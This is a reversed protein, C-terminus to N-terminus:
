MKIDGDLTGTTGFPQEGSKPNPGWKNDGKEGDTAFLVIIWIATAVIVLAPLLIWTTNGESKLMLVIVAAVFIPIIFIFIYWGSKGIDHLRRVMVALSPLFIALSYLTNLIGYQTYSINLKLSKDIITLITSFIINFLAFMWYEKRRARGSFGTYNRIVKLYWNM